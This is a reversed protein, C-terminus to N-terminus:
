SGPQPPFTQYYLLGGDEGDAAGEAFLYMTVLLSPQGDITVFEVGPNSFARSGGDTRIDLPEVTGTKLDHLFLRWSARDGPVTEGEVLMFSRGRYAFTARDGIHGVVGASEMAADLEPNPTTHWENWDTWGNAQRDRECGAHYHFTVEVRYDSASTIDPTGEGCAPMTVPLDMFRPRGGENVLDDWTRFEIISLHIPDPEQEWALLYRGSPTRAITPQSGGVSYDNQEDWTFLDDSTALHVVFAGVSDDWVSYVAVFRDAEPSWIVKTPGMDRGDTDRLRYHRATSGAVNEILGRLEDRIPDADSPNSPGGCGALLLGVAMLSIRSWGLAGQLWLGFRIM